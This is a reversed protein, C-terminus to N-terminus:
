ADKEMKEISVELAMKNAQLTELETKSTRVENKM